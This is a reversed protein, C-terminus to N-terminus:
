LTLISIIAVWGGDELVEIVKFGNAELTHKVDKEKEKIIGSSIFYGGKKLVSKIDPTVGIIVEAFINAVVMDAQEKIEDVLNGHIVTLKDQTKNSSVNERAIKCASQDLDILIGKDIGLKAGAIGLIGSGCGVDILTEHGKVYKDMAKIMMSTTEHTGSGFAMGPDIDIIFDAKKGGVSNVDEWISRVLIRDGIMFPKYFAKWNHAWDEDNSDNSLLDLSGIDVRNALNELGLKIDKLIHKIDDEESLYFRVIVQDLKINALEIANAFMAEQEEETIYEDVIEVGQIPFDYLISCVLDSAERNVTLDFVKYKM